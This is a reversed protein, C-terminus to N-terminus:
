FLDVADPYSGAGFGVDKLLEYPFTKILAGGAELGVALVIIGQENEIYAINQGGYYLSLLWQNRQRAGLTLGEGDFRATPDIEFVAPIRKAECQKRIHDATFALDRGVRAEVEATVPLYDDSRVDGSLIRRARDLFDPRAEPRVEVPSANDTTASGDGAPADYDHSVGLGGPSFCKMM